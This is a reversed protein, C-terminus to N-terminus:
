KWVKSTSFKTGKSEFSQLPMLVVNAWDSPKIEIIPGKIHSPLYAKIMKDAGQFGKVKSWDINLKTKNTLTNTNAYQKLLDELFQQRARPPVYHLNLGHMLTTGSKPSKVFGLFVILPYRDWYPLTAKHKADYNYAYIKGATPRSVKHGRVGKKLTENFWSVSKDSYGKIKSAAINKKLSQRFSNIMLLARDNRTLRNEPKKNIAEIKIALDIKAKYRHMQKTFTGYNIGHMEAYKKSTLTPTAKKANQFDVGIRTWKLEEKSAIPTKDVEKAQEVIKFIDM